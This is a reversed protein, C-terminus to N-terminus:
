DPVDTDTDYDPNESTANLLEKMQEETMIPADIMKVAQSVIADDISFDEDVIDQIEHELGHLRYLASRLAETIFFFDNLAEHNTEDFEIDAIHLGEFLETSHHETMQDLRRRLKEEAPTDDEKRRGFPVHPETIEIEDVQKKKEPRKFPIVNDWKEVITAATNSRNDNM